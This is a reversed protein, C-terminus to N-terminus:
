AASGRCTRGGSRNETPRSLTIEGRSEIRQFHAELKAARDPARVESRAITHEGFFNYDFWLRNEKVFFSLGLQDDRDRRDGARARTRM